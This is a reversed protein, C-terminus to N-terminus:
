ELTVEGNVDTSKIANYVNSLIDWTTSTVVGTEKIGFLRQFAKVANETQEDYVGNVTLNPIESYFKGVENLYGQLYRVEPGVSGLVLINGFYSTASESFASPPLTSYLAEYVNLLYDWVSEDVIGNPEFGFLRQFSVVSQYTKEGFVGIIQPPLIRNDFVSVFYLYYQLLKVINGVSGYSLDSRLEPLIESLEIGMEVLNNLQKVSNYIYLLKYYTDKEFYGTPNLDFIKQFETVANVTVEDYLGNVNEIKPITVYNAGVRNLALQLSSVSSNREGPYVPYTLMLENSLGSLYADKVIYINRGYAYKLIEEYTMGNEAMEISSEVSLGSCRISEYCIEASIPMNENERSIYETFINDVIKNINDYTPHMYVYPQDVDPDNTIDFNYGRTRYFKSLIRNLALTIQAYIVAYLAELPINPDLQSSAVSKIYDFFSLTVNDADEDVRGMHVTIYAPIEPFSYDNTM